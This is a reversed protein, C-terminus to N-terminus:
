AEPARAGDRSPMVRDPSGACVPIVYAPLRTGATSICAAKGVAALNRDTDLVLGCWEM